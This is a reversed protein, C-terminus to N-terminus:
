ASFIFRYQHKMIEFIGMVVFIITLDTMPSIHLIVLSTSSLNFRVIVFYDVVRIWNVIM